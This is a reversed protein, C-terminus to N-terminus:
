KRIEDLSEQVTKINEGIRSDRIHRQMNDEMIYGALRILTEGEFLLTIFARLHDM